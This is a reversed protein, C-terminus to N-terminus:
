KLYNGMYPQEPAPSAAQTTATPQALAALGSPQRMAAGRLMRAFYPQAYQPLSSQSGGKGGMGGQPQQGRVLQQGINNAQQPSLGAQGLGVQQGGKGGMGGMKNMGSFGSFGPAGIPMGNPGVQNINGGKGGMGGRQANFQAESMKMEQTPRNVYDQYSAGDGQMNPALRQLDSMGRMQGGKGGMGGQQFQSREFDGIGSQGGKGGMGGMQPQQGFGGQSYPNNFYEPQFQPQYYQQAYPNQQQGGKGSFGGQPPQPPQQPQFRGAGKGGFGGQTQQAGGKGRFGGQPQQGGKGGMGNQVNNTANQFAGGARGMGM